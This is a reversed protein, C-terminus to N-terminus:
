GNAPNVTAFRGGAVADVYEGGIFLRTEINGAARDAEAAWSQRDHSEIQSLTM